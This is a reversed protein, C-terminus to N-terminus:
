EVIFDSERRFTRSWKIKYKKQLEASIDEKQHAIVKCDYANEESLVTLNQYGQKRYKKFQKEYDCLGLLILFLDSATVEMGEILTEQPYKTYYAEAASQAAKNLKSQRDREGNFDVTPEGGWADDSYFGVPKGNYYINGQQLPMGDHGRFDKIGKIEFGNIKAM